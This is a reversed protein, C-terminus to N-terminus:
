NRGGEVGETSSGAGNMTSGHDTLFRGGLVLRGRGKFSHMAFFLQTGKEGERGTSGLCRGGKEGTAYGTKKGRVGM